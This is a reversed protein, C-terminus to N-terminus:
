ARTMSPMLGDRDAVLQLVRVRGVSGVRTCPKGVAVDSPARPHRRQKGGLRPQHEFVVMRARDVVSETRRRRPGSAHPRGPAWRFRWAAARAAPAGSPPGGTQALGCTWARSCNGSGALAGASPHSAVGFWWRIPQSSGVVRGQQAHDIARRQGQEHVAVRSQEPMGAHCDDAAARRGRASAVVGAGEGPRRSDPVETILPMAAPISAAASSAANATSLPAVTATSPVPGVQRGGECALRCSRM